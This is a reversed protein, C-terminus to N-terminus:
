LENSISNRLETLLQVTSDIVKTTGKFDRDVLSEYIENSSDHLDDMLTNIHELRLREHSSPTKM